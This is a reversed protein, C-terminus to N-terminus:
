VLNLGQLVQSAHKDREEQPFTSQYLILLCRFNRVLRKCVWICFLVLAKWSGSSPKYTDKVKHRFYVLVTEYKFVPIYLIYNTDQPLDGQM